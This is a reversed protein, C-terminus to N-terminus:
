QVQEIRLTKGTAGIIKLNGNEDLLNAQEFAEGAESVMEALTIPQFNTNLQLRAFQEATLGGSSFLKAKTNGLIKKQFQAPQTKLWSYYSTSANVQKIDIDGEKDEGQAPRKAGEKLFDFEPDLVPATTSRCGYHIPPRPGENVKFTQGDLSRCQSTTSGDLTSVWEVSEVVDDNAKWIEEKAQSAANQVATRVMATTNRNVTSLTGDKFNNPKTGRVAKVIEQTTQSESFGQSIAGEILAIQDETYQKLFPELTLGQAKGRVSLANQSYATLIQQSAPLVAEFAPLARSLVSAELEASTLAVEDLEGTLEEIWAAFVEKEIVRVDALLKKLRTRNRITLGEDLLRGRIGREIQKLYKAFKAAENAKVGELLVQRRVADNVFIEPSEEAM